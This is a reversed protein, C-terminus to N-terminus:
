RILEVVLLALPVAIIVAGAIAAGIAYRVFMRSPPDQIRDGLYREIAHRFELTPDLLPHVRERIRRGSQDRGSIIHVEGAKSQYFRLVDEVADFGIERRRRGWEFILM